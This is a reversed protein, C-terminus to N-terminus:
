FVYFTFKWYMGPVLTDRCGLATDFNLRSIVTWHLLDHIDFVSFYLFHLILFVDGDVINLCEM